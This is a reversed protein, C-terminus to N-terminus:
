ALSGKSDETMQTAWQDPRVIRWFIIASIPGATATSFIFLILLYGPDSLVPISRLIIAATLIITILSSVFLYNELTSKGLRRLALHVPLGIAYGCLLTILLGCVFAYVFFSAGAFLASGINENTDFGCIGMDCASVVAGAITAYITSTVLAAIFIAKHTKPILM